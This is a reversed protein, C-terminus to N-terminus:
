IYLIFYLNKDPTNSTKMCVAQIRRVMGLQSVSNGIVVCWEWNRCVMGLQYVGNWIADHHDCVRVYEGIM